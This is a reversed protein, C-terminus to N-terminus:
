IMLERFGEFDVKGKGDEDIEDIIENLDSESLKNDLERLIEKLTQTTIYGNGEKDYLRFAERLENTITEEDDEQLFNSAITVFKDFNIKGDQESDVRKITENLDDIDFATGMTTFITELDKAEVYGKKAKDVTAFAKRLSKCIREAGCHRWCAVERKWASGGADSLM